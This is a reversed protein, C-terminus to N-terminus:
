SSRKLRTVCVSSITNIVILYYQERDCLYTDVSKQQVFNNTRQICPVMVWTFVFFFYLDPRLVFSQLFIIARFQFIEKHIWNVRQHTHRVDCKHTCRPLIRVYIYTRSTQRNHAVLNHRRTTKQTTVFTEDSRGQIHLLYTGGFRQLWRCYYM